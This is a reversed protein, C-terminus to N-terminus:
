RDGRRTLRRWLPTRPPTLATCAGDHGDDCTPCYVWLPHYRWPGYVVGPTPVPGAVVPPNATAPGTNTPAVEGLVSRLEADLEAASMDQPLRAPGAPITSM